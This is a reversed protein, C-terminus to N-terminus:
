ISPFLMYMKWKQGMKNKQKNITCNTLVTKQKLKFLIFNKALYLLFSNSFAIRDKKHLDFTIFNQFMIKIFCFHIANVYGFIQKKDIIVKQLMM